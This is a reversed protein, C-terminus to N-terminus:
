HEVISVISSFSFIEVDPVGHVRARGPEQSASAIRDKINGQAVAGNGYSPVPAM